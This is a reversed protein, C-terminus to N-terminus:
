GANRTAGGGTDPHAAVRLTPAVLSGVWNSLLRAGVDGSKEPHFQTGVVNGERVVCPFAVGGYRCSAVVHTHDDPQAYFSHVFYLRDGDVGAMLPDPAGVSRVVDWGMHPVIADSPLRRVDGPLLGLGDVGGEDSRRYLLQMGVCIGFMARDAAIWDHVLTELGADRLAELCSRFAGVGPIVLADARAAEDPSSTIFADAGARQLGRQASRVNGAEYDLVAVVPTAPSTM